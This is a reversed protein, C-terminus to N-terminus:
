QLSSSSPIGHKFGHGCFWALLCVRSIMSMMEKPLPLAIVLVHVTGASMRISTTCASSMLSPFLLSAGSFKSCGLTDRALLSQIILRYDTERRYHRLRTKVEHKRIFHATTAGCKRRGSFFAQQDTITWTWCLRDEYAMPMQGKELSLDARVDPDNWSLEMSEDGTGRWQFHGWTKASLLPM